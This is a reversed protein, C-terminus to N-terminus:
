NLAAEIPVWFSRSEQLLKSARDNGIILAQVKTYEGTKEKKKLCCWNGECGKKM